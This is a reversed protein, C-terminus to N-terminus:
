CVLPTVLVRLTLPYVNVYMYTHIVNLHLHHIDSKDLSTSSPKHEVRNQDDHNSKM